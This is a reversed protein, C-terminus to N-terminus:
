SRITLLGVSEYPRLHNVKKQYKEAFLLNPKKVGFIAELNEYVEETYCIKDILKVELARQAFYPGSTLIKKTTEVDLGRNQAIDTSIQQFYDDILAKTVERHAETFKEQTFMNAANQLFFNIGLHFKM